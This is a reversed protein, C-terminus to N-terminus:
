KTILIKQTLNDIKFFYVGAALEHLSIAIPETSQHITGQRCVTGSVDVLEWSYSSKLVFQPRIFVYERAPNPFVMWPSQSVNDISADLNVSWGLDQLIGLAVPGPEHETEGPGIFPTMMSNPNGPPYTSENLHHLSSGFAFSSPAYLRVRQNNNALVANTGNFYLQNSTFQTALAVSPNLFITTDDLEQGSLNEIFTSYVAYKGQQEPFPFSLVLPAIDSQEVYGFSGEGNNIDSLAMFGLGHAIEHMMVSVLDYKNPPTNGDLGFYWNATNDIFINMDDEGSNLESGALANALATPYWVSDLPANPFDRRGNPITIGLTQGFLNAFYVRVKIPVSSNLYEGWKQGCYNVVADFSPTGNVTQMQFVSQAQMNLVILICFSMLVYKM